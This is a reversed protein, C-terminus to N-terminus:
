YRAKLLGWSARDALVSKEWAGEDRWYALRYGDALEAVYFDQVGAAALVDGNILTVRASLEFSKWLLGALEPDTALSWEASRPSLGLEIRQIAAAEQSPIGTFMHAIADVERQRSWIGEPTGSEEIDYRSFEFLFQSDLILQYNAFDRANLVESM